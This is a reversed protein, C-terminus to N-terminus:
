TCLHSSQRARDNSTLHQNPQHQRQKHAAPKQMCLPTSDEAASTGATCAVCAAIFGVWGVRVQGEKQGWTGKGRVGGRQGVGQRLNSASCNHVQSRFFLQAASRCQLNSHIAAATDAADGLPPLLTDIWALCQHTAKKSSATGQRPSRELPQAHMVQNHLPAHLHPCALALCSGGQARSSSTACAPEIHQVQVWGEQAPETAAGSGM